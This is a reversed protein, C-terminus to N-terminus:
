NLLKKWDEIIKNREHGFAIRLVRNGFVKLRQEGKLTLSLTECGYLVVPFIITKYPV